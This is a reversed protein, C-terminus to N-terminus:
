EKRFIGLLEAFLYYGLIVGMGEISLFIALILLVTNLNTSIGENIVEVLMLAGGMALALLIIFNWKHKRPNLWKFLAHVWKLNIFRELQAVLGIHSKIWRYISVFDDFVDEFATETKPFITTALAWTSIFLIIMGLLASFIGAPISELLDVPYIALILISVFFLIARTWSHKAFAFTSKVTIRYLLLGMLITLLVLGGVLGALIWGAPSNMWMLPYRIMAIIDAILTVFISLLAVTEGRLILLQQSPPIEKVTYPRFARILSLLAALFSLQIGFSGVADYPDDAFPNVLALVPIHKSNDFFAFFFITLLLIVFSLTKFQRATQTKM